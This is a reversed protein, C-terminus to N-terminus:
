WLTLLARGHNELEKSAARLREHEAVQAQGEERVRRVLPAGVEDNDFEQNDYNTTAQASKSEEAQEFKTAILAFVGFLDGPFLQREDPISTQDSTCDSKTEHQPDVFRVGISSHDDRGAERQDDECRDDETARDPEDVATQETVSSLGCVFGLSDLIHRDLM